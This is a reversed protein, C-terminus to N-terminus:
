DPKARPSTKKHPKGRGILASIEKLESVPRKFYRPYVYEYKAGKLLFIVEEGNHYKRIQGLTYHGDKWLEIILTKPTSKATTYLVGSSKVAVHLRITNKEFPGTRAATNTVLNGNEDVMDIHSITGKTIHDADSILSDLPKPDIPTAACILPLAFLAGLSM